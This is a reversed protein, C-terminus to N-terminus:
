YFYGDENDECSFYDHESDQEDECLDICNDGDFRENADELDDSESEGDETFISLDEDDQTMVLHVGFSKLCLSDLTLNLFNVRCAFPSRPWTIQDDRYFMESFRIYCLWVHGSGIGHGSGNKRFDSATFYPEVGPQNVSIKTVFGNYRPRKNQPNEGAAYLALGQNQCKFNPPIEILFECAEDREKVYKHCSFLTSLAEFSAPFVVQFGHKQSSLLHDFFITIQEKAKLINSLSSFRELSVCDSADLKVIKPPLEPIDRLRKCGHLYLYRMNVFKTICKPISVLFDCLTLDLESLTSVYDESKVKNPFTVLKRSRRLCIRNLHELEYISPPLNTLNECSSLHLLELNILYVISAPLEKIGSGHLFMYRLSDMKGGIDPFTELRRCFQLNLVELSKSKIIPFLTLNHCCMLSLDVLKDHFGVSPHVEVLSRCYDLNLSQLNPIGSINPTKTLLECSRFNMSTLNQLRKFGEGLQSLRSCPMYLEVLKRPNFTSPLTQLPCGPWHLFRLENSLYDVHDGYFRANVNIFLRLNKM